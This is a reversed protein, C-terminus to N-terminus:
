RLVLKWTTVSVIVEGRRVYLVPLVGGDSRVFPIPQGITDGNFYVTIEGTNLDRDLRVRAVYVSVSRQSVGSITGGSIQSLNLVGQKVLQIQLGAQASADAPDQLAAGFYVENTNQLTPNFTLLTMEVDMRRIRAAANGGYSRELFAAPLVIRVQPDDGARDAGMRWYSSDIATVLSFEDGPWPTEPLTRLLALVDQEGQLGGPPLTATPSATATATPAPTDTSTPTPTETFTASPLPTESPQVAEPSVPPAPLTPRLTASPILTATALNSLILTPTVLAPDLTAPLATFAATAAETQPLVVAETTAPTPSITVAVGSQGGGGGSLLAVLVVVVLLAGGGIFLWRRPLGRRPTDEQPLVTGATDLPDDNFFSSSPADTPPRYVSEPLPEDETIRPTPESTPPAPFEPAHETLDYWHRYLPYAPHRDIFMARFLQNFRNLRESRRVTNDTYVALFQEYTDRWGRLSVAYDAGLLRETVDTLRRHASRVIEQPREPRQEITSTMQRAMNHLEAAGSQLEMLHSRYRTLTIAATQEVENVATLANELKLGAARFEGDSWEKLAAEVERLSHAGAALLRAQSNDELKKRVTGLEALAARDQVNNLLDAGALLDRRRAIFEGLARTLPHRTGHDGLVRAGAEQWFEADALRGEHADLTGYFIDNAFLIRLPASSSRSFLEVLGKGMAKLYTENSPMQAAFQDRTTREEPTYLREAASLVAVTGKANLVGSREIWERAMESIARLREAAFRQSDTRAIESAQQGLREADQLRGRDFAEWGDALARGLGGYLAHREVYSANTVVTRVQNLWGALTPSLTSVGDIAATIQTIAGQRDGQLTSEAYASWSRGAIELGGVMGVLMEDFLRERFPLLDLRTNKLWDELDSGDAAPVYTQYSGLLEYLGDLLRSVNDWAPNTPDIARSGDLAHLADRPSATAQRGIVHMNDALAMAAIQARELASVPLQHDPLPQRANLNELLTSMATLGDVVTRFGDRLDILSAAQAEEITTLAANVETLVARPETVSAGEAALAALATDLRYLNPRLLNLDPTHATIREALLWQLGRARDQPLMVLLHAARAPQQEFLLTIAELVAPPAPQVRSDLMTGAVDLLLDIFAQMDGRARGRLENLLDAGRSWNGSELYIRAADLDAGVELDHLRAQIDAQAARGQPFGPDTALAPALADLLGHLEDKSRNHRLRDAVRGLVANRERELPDRYETLLRRLETISRTRLKINPHVARSIITMLRPSLREADDGFNLMFDEAADRPIEARAGGTVLYYMLVGVQLVDSQRSVGQPTIEDGELFVANGWDIVKLRYQDRDWFLHKADVDNYVIDLNHAAHLLDLLNDLIVLMELEPIRERRGTLDRVWDAVVVGQGREMVIYQHASGGVVFQGGGLLATAVPHGALRTLAKRENLISVEQGARIPPADNPAPRKVVVLRDNDQTDVARLTEGSRGRPYIYDYRYRNDFLSDAM